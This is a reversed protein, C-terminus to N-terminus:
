ATLIPLFYMKPEVKSEKGSLNAFNSDNVEDPEWVFETLSM